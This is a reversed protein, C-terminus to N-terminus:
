RGREVTLELRGDVLTELSVVRNGLLRALSPLDQKAAPDRAVVVLSDGVPIQGIRARFAGALGDACGLTGADFRHVGTPGPLVMLRFGSCLLDIREILEAGLDCFLHQEVERPGDGEEVAIRYTVLWRDVFPEIRHEVLECSVADAFWDVFRGVAAARGHHEELGPPVIARLRVDPYLCAALGDFDRAALREVFSGLITAPTGNVAAPDARNHEEISCSIDIAM